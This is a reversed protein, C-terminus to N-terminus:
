ISYFVRLRCRYFFLALILIYCSDLCPKVFIQQNQGHARSRRALARPAGQCRGYSLLTRSRRALARPAGQCREYALLARSRRALARPAGQGTKAGCRNCLTISNHIYAIVQNILKHTYALTPAVGDSGRTKADGGDSGTDQRWGGDSRRWGTAVKIRNEKFWRQVVDLVYHYTRM